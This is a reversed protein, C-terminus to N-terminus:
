RLHWSCSARAFAWSFLSFWKRLGWRIKVALEKNAANLSLAHQYVELAEGMKEAEELAQGKRFYGATPMLCPWMQAPCMNKKNEQQQQTSAMIDLAPWMIISTCPGALGQQHLHLPVMTMAMIHGVSSQQLLM